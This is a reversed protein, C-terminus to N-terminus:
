RSDAADTGGICVAPRGPLCTFATPSSCAPKAAPWWGSNDSLPPNPPRRGRNQWRRAPRTGAPRRSVRPPRRRSRREGPRLVESWDTTAMAPGIELPTGAFAVTGPSTLVVVQDCINLHALSTSSTVSAVVVCGIDAQRRLVAMVHSEQAADLGAGPEDVLLLTPRTILEIAMAACRRFEPALKSIRTSRFADARARRSGPGGRASPARALCRGAAATRRRIGAGTPRHAAPAPPRRAPVIGIRARMAQPEAHIDHGDVTIRGSDLDRTGALLGLLVSNRAASPGTVATLTGPRATFSVDTLVEREDVTLGLQYATLGVTRAGAKLPLRHTLGPERAPTAPPLPARQARLKRTADTM